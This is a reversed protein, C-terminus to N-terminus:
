PKFIARLEPMGARGVREIADRRQGALLQLLARWRLGPAYRKPAAVSLLAYVQALALRQPAFVGMRRGAQVFSHTLSGDILTGEIDCFVLTSMTDSRQQSRIYRM